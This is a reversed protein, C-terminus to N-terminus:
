SEIPNTFIKECDSPQHKTRNVTDKEKFLSKLKTLNWKDITSILVQAIPTRRLFIEEALTNLARGVKEKILNLMAPKVNLDKDV